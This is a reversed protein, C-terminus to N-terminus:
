AGILAAYIPDSRYLSPHIAIKDISSFGAVRFLEQARTFPVPYPVWRNSKSSDYEILILRGSGKLYKKLRQVCAVQDKVYHLSNSMLMGDLPPLTLVDQSFDARQFVISSSFDHFDHRELDVAHVVSGKPLLSLLAHSFLGSGSGLDAWIQPSDSMGVGNKILSIAEILQMTM